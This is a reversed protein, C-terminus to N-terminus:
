TSISWVLSPVIIAKQGPVFLALNYGWIQGATVTTKKEEKQKNEKSKTKTLYFIFGYESKHSEFFFSCRSSVPLSLLLKTKDLQCRPFPKVSSQM